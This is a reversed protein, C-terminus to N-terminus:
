QCRVFSGDMTDYFLDLFDSQLSQQGCSFVGHSTYGIEIEEHTRIALDYGDDSSSPTFDVRAIFHAAADTSYLAQADCYTESGCTGTLIGGDCHATVRLNMGPDNADGLRELWVTEVTCTGCGGEPCSVCNTGDTWSYEDLTFTMANLEVTAWEDSPACTPETPATGGEGGMTGATGATGASSTGGTSGSGAASGTGGTGGTGAAVSGGTGADSSGGAGATGGTQVSSGASGGKGSGGKGTAGGRPESGASGGSGATSGGTGATVKPEDMGDAGAELEGSGAEGGEFAYTTGKFEPGCAVSFSLLLTVLFRKSLSHHTHNM